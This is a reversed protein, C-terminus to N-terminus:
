VTFSCFELKPEGVCIPIPNCEEQGCSMEMLECVKGEACEFGQIFYICSNGWQKSMALISKINVIYINSSIIIFYGNM